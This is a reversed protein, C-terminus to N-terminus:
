EKRFLYQKKTPACMIRRCSPPMSFMIQSLAQIANLLDATRDRKDGGCPVRSFLSTEFPVLRKKYTTHTEYALMDRGYLCM